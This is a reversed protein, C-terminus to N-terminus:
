KEEEKMEVRSNWEKIADEESFLSSGILGGEDYCNDCYLSVAYSRGWVIPAEGCYPCPVPKTM